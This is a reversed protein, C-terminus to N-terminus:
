KRQFLIYYKLVYPWPIIVLDVIASKFILTTMGQVSSGALKHAARLPYAVILLWITKYAFQILLVPIMKLPHLIGLIALISFAGWFSYAVAPLPQWLEKHTFIQTLTDLGLLVFILIYFFRLLYFRSKSVGTVQDTKFLTKINVTIKNM